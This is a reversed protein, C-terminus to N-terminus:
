AKFNLCLPYVAEINHVAGGPLLKSSYLRFEEVGFSESKFASHGSLFEVVGHSNSKKLRALTVHPSFKRGERKIGLENLTSEIKNRLRTLLILDEIGAWLVKPSSRKSSNGPPFSGVGTIQLPFQEIKIESLKNRIDRFMQGDVEGIFKVTTHLQDEQTWKAGPINVRLQLLSSRIHDPIPVAIFLRYM